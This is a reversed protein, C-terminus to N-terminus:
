DIWVRVTAEDDEIQVLDQGSDLARLLEGLTPCEHRSRGCRGHVDLPWDGGLSRVLALPLNIKVRARHGTKEEVRVRFWRPGSAHDAPAAEAAPAREAPLRAERQDSAAVAKKVAQLDDEDERSSGCRSGSV